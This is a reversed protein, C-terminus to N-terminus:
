EEGVDVLFLFRKYNQYRAKSIPRNVKPRYYSVKERTVALSAFYALTNTGPMDNPSLRINTPLSRLM